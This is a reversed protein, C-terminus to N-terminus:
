SGSEKGVFAHYRQAAVAMLEPTASLYWATDTYHVHGMYTALIPLLAQVDKGERYWTVLRNVAFTHRLGHLNPLKGQRGMLRARVRLERFTCQLTHKSFRRGWLHLFLAPCTSKKSADNRYVVYQRLKEIVSSHLPILRDKHFKTCRILLTGTGFDLDSLDLRCVESIRLGASATLGIITYLTIGRMRNRKSIRLSEDLLRAIEEATFIYAPPRRKPRTLAKPDLRPTQPDITALFDSFHRVVQYRRGSENSSLGPKESAFGLALEQTFVGLHGSKRVYEDFAFLVDTQVAYSFGLNKRLAVYKKLTPAFMSTFQKM